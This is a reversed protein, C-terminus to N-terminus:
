RWHRKMWNQRQNRSMEGWNHPMPWVRRQATREQTWGGSWRGSRQEVRKGISGNNRRRMAMKAAKEAERDVAKVMPRQNKVKPRNGRV